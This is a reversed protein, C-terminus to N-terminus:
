KLLRQHMSVGGVQVVVPLLVQQLFRIVELVAPIVLAVQAVQAL